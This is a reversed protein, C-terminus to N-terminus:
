SPDGEGMAPAVSDLIHDARAQRGERKSETRENWGCSCRATHQYIPAYGGWSRSGGVRADHDFYEHQRLDIRGAAHAAALEVATKKTPLDMILVEGVQVDGNSAVVPTGVNWGRFNWVILGDVHTTKGAM